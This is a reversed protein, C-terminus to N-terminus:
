EIEYRIKAEQIKDKLEIFESRIKVIKAIKQDMMKLQKEVTKEMDGIMSRKREIDEVIRIGDRLVSLEEGISVYEQLEQLSFGLADRANIIKKLKEVDSETYLRFGGESREPALLGIEEYYRVTRKTLGCLNAVDEIKYITM